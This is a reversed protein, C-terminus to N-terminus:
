GSPGRGSGEGRSQPPPLRPTPTPTNQLPSPSNSAKMHADRRTTFIRTCPSKHLGPLTTDTNMKSESSAGVEDPIKLKPMAVEALEEEGSPGTDDGSDDQSLTTWQEYLQALWTAANQMIIARSGDGTLRAAHADIEALSHGLSKILNLNIGSECAIAPVASTDDHVALEPLQHQARCREYLLNQAETLEEDIEDRLETSKQKSRRCTV